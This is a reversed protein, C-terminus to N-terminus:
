SPSLLVLLITNRSLLNAVNNIPHFGSCHTPTAAAGERYKVVGDVSNEEGREQKFVSASGATTGEVLSV